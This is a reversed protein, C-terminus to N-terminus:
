RTRLLRQFRSDGGAELRVFYLGSPVLAGRDDRGDWTESHAGANMGRDVLTRVRRGAVDHITLRVPSEAPLAFRISTPGSSPNPTAASLAITKPASPPEAGLSGAPFAMLRFDDVGAEVLSPAGTDSAIFRLKMTSTPTVYDEIKFLIREWSPAGALTNEVPTWSTGGDNSIDVRWPDTSPNNGNGNSFWRYYEIVPHEVGGATADFVPTSLTTAGGDVDNYGNSIHLTDNGTIWCQTGNPTHDFGPQVITTDPAEGATTGIPEARIWLGSIAADGPAGVTWGPDTEMDWSFQTPALGALFRYVRLDPADPPASRTGGYSDAVTLYYSVVSGLAAPITAQYEGFIGTPQMPVDTFSGRDLAYHLTPSAPDLSAVSPGTYGFIARVVIPGGGPQDAVPTHSINLFQSAGIGHADFAPVIASAHPTGDSLDGNDDDAVLLDLFVETFAIPDRTDDPHGHRSQEFLTEASQLTMAERMDWVAGGVILGVTHPDDNNGLPWRVTPSLDRVFTGPGSFGQGIVPDDQMFAANVDAEGEHLSQNSMGGVIGDAIYIGDNVAHGYEHFTVDAVTAANVCGQGAGYFTLGFGNWFANCFANPVNVTIPMEYDLGTFAPELQKIHDHAMIVHVYADREADHSLGDLGWAVDVTAPDVAPLSFSADGSGFPLVDARSVEAFPGHLTTSVTVPGAATASYAGNDDTTVRTPGVDVYAHRVPQAQFLDTPLTPHVYATVTGSIASRVRNTRFLVHGTAADVYTLWDGPPDSTVVRLQYAPRLETSGGARVPVLRLDREAEARDRSADFKLGQAAAQRAIGVPIRVTRAPSQTPQADAGFMILRGDKWVRFEWDSFEVDLGDVVQRYSAYWVDGHRAVGLARLTVAGFVDSNDAVFRRVAGDVSAADGRFGPLPISPGVARHPSATAENWVASWAGHRARFRQWGPSRELAIQREPTAFEVPPTGRLRIEGAASAGETNRLTGARDTVFSAAPSAASLALVCGIAPTM